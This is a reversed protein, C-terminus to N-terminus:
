DLALNANEEEQSSISKLLFNATETLYFNIDAVASDDITCSAIDRKLIDLERITYTTVKDEEISNFCINFRNTIDLDSSFNEYKQATSLSCSTLVTSFTIILFIILLRKM